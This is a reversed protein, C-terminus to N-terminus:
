KAWTPFFDPSLKAALYSGLVDLTPKPFTVLHLGM